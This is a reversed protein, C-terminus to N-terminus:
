VGPPEGGCERILEPVVDFLDDVIAYDAIDLIPANSDNNIAVIIDSDKMGAVHQVAGSIGIALYVTPTVTKGSQGVQRHAPLWDNDVIPRSAALTGGTMDVLHEILKLNDEDEIGRGISVIFEAESIDIGDAAVADFGTVTSRVADRDVEIEHSVVTADGPEHTTPWEGPRLMLLATEAETGVSTEVKGGYMERTARLRGDHEVDVVNTILPLDLGQAVAPVYDLGNVSNPTIVYSPDIRDCLASVIQCYVDHNFEDGHDITHIASVGESNLEAAFRDVDGNIIAVHLEDGLTSALEVGATLLEFSVDRLDGDRHEAVVLISM